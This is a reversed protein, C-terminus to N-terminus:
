EIGDEDECEHDIRINDALLISQSLSSSIFKRITQSMSDNCYAVEAIIRFLFFYM